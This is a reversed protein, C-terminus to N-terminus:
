NQGSYKRELGHLQFYVWWNWRRGIALIMLLLDFNSDMNLISIEGAWKTCDSGVHWSWAWRLCQPVQCLFYSSSKPTSPKCSNQFPIANVTFSLTGSCCMIHYLNYQQEILHYDSYICHHCQDCPCLYHINRVQCLLWGMTPLVRSSPLGIQCM